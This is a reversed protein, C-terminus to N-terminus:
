ARLTALDIVFRYKVDSRVVRDYADNIKQVPILEIDSAIGHAACYDLMEQTERLGGILSGALSKRGLILSFGSIEHPRDSAGVMVLTGDRKLLGMFRDLDHKTAVTDLILDFSGLHKRMAADDDSLVVADAGLRRADDSKSKSRTFQVVEAGFAHALKLGMHGLGGLGIVGVKKGPGAGWHRLPSYTTIGACLLPAVQALKDPAHTIRLVFDEDVVISSSYGGQTTQGDKGVGNYTLTAGKECFQELEARCNGCERCSDVLCGVGALDGPRFKTVANGVATVRGAIEHGPVMPFRGPSWEDRVQHIDSHCIGCFLIELSVDRPGVARREFTFPALPARAQPAAYGQAKPM